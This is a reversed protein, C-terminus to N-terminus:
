IYGTGSVCPFVDILNRAVKVVGGVKDCEKMKQQQDSCDKYLESSGSIPGDAVISVDSVRIDDARCQVGHCAATMMVARDSADPSISAPLSSLEKGVISLVASCDVVRERSHSTGGVQESSLTEKIKWHPLVRHLPLEWGCLESTSSRQVLPLDCM